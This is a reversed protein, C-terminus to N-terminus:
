TNNKKNSTNSRFSVFCPPKLPHLWWMATPTIPNTVILLYLPREGESLDMFVLFAAHIQESDDTELDKM